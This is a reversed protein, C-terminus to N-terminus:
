NHSRQNVGVGDHLLMSSNLYTKRDCYCCRLLFSTSTRLVKLVLSQM